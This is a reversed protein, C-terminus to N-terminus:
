VVTLLMTYTLVSLLFYMLIAIYCEQSLSFKVTQMIYNPFLIVHCQM